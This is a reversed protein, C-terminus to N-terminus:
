KNVWRALPKLLAYTPRSKSGDQRWKNISCKVLCPTALVDPIDMTQYGTLAPANINKTQGQARLRRIVKIEEATLDRIQENAM